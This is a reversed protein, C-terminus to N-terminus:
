PALREREWAENLGARRFRIRDHLRSSRGQWFEFSLPLVRYGGWFAPRPVQEGPYQADFHAAREDLISRDAIVSSQPSAWAGIRSGRPRSQYYADNEDDHLMEVMGEVRVQRELEKWFFLLAVRPHHEMDHGKASEYNSFFMFGRDDLGKLLVTRAHPQSDSDVTALTMANLEDLQAHEVESLWKRFFAFPDNGVAHEDLSALCYDRRIGALNKETDAM